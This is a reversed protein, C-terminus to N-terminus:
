ASRPVAGGRAAGLEILRIIGESSRALARLLARPSVRRLDALPPPVIGHPGGPGQDVM